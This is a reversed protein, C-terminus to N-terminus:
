NFKKICEDCIYVSPGPVFTKLEDASKAGFSCNM